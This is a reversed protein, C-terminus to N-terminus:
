FIITEFINSGIFIKASIYIVSRIEKIGSKGFLWDHPHLFPEPLHLRNLEVHYQHDCNEEENNFQRNAVYSM